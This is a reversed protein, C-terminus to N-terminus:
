VKKKSSKKVTKKGKYVKHKILVDRFGRDSIFIGTECVFKTLAEKTLRKSHSLYYAVIKQEDEDSLKKHKGSSEMDWIQEQLTRNESELDSKILTMDSLETSKKSLEYELRKIRNQLKENESQLDKNSEEALSARQSQAYMCQTLELNSNHLESKESKLKDIKSEYTNEQEIYAEKELKLKRKYAELEKELETIRNDKKGLENNLTTIKKKEINIEVLANDLNEQNAKIIADRVKIPDTITEETLEIVDKDSSIVNKSKLTRTHIYYIDNDTLGQAELEECLSQRVGKLENNRDLRDSESLTVSIPEINNKKLFDAISQSKLKYLFHLDEISYTTSLEIIKKNRIAKLESKSRSLGDALEM